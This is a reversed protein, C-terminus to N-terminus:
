PFRPIAFVLFLRGFFPNTGQAQSHDLNTLFIKNQMQRKQCRNAGARLFSRPTISAVPPSHRRGQSRAVSLNESRSMPAHQQKSSKRREEYPRTSSCGATRQGAYM